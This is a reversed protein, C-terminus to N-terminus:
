RGGVFNRSPLTKLRTEPTSGPDETPTTGVGRSPHCCIIKGFKGFFFKPDYPPPAGRLDAVTDTQRNMNILLRAITMQSFHMRTKNKKKNSIRNLTKLINRYREVDGEIRRVYNRFM